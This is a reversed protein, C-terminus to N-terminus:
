SASALKNESPRAVSAEVHTSIDGVTGGGNIPLDNRREKTIKSVKQWQERTGTMRKMDPTPNVLWDDADFFEYIPGRYSGSGSIGAAAQLLVCAPRMLKTDFLLTIQEKPDKSM